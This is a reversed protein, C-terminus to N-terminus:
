LKWPPKRVMRRSCKALASLSTSRLLLSFSLAVVLSLALACFLVLSSPLRSFFALRFRFLPLSIKLRRRGSSNRAIRLISASSRSPILSPKVLFNFKFGPKHYFCFFVFYLFHFSKAIAAPRLNAANGAGNTFKTVYNRSRCATCINRYTHMICRANRACVGGVRAATQTYTTAPLIRQQM